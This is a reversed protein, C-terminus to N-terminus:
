SKVGHEGKFNLCAKGRSADTLIKQDPGHFCYKFRSM